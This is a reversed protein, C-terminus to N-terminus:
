DNKNKKSFQDEKKIFAVVLNVMGLVALFVGFGKSLFAGDVCSALISVLDSSILAPISLLLYPFEILKNKIHFVTAVISM